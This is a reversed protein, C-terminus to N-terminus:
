IDLFVDTATPHIYGNKVLGKRIRNMDLDIHSTNSKYLGREESNEPPRVLDQNKTLDRVFKSLSIHFDAEKRENRSTMWEKYELFLESSCGSLSKGGEVRTIVWRLISESNLRRMDTRASTMPRNLDFELSTKYCNYNKLYQYFARQVKPNAMQKVLNNFYNSDSKISKDVDYPMFRRDNPLGAYGSIPNTNNTGFWYRTYDQQEYKQVGKRNVTRIKTTVKAKLDDIMKSNDKANAEEVFVFIKNELHENFPNFLESNNSIVLCYEDGIIRKFLWELLLNKGTGGGSALLASEDRLIVAIDEKEAPFQVVHSLYNLLYTPDGEALHTLHDIIPKILEAVDETPVAELKEAVFGSFMNYVGEPCVDPPCIFDMREYQRRNADRLWMFYFNQNVIKGDEWRRFLKNAYQIQADSNTMCQMKGNSQVHWIRANCVFHNLEFELKLKDYEENESRNILSKFVEENEQKCWYYLTKISIDEETPRVVFSKYIAHSEGEVYKKSRKSFEDFLDADFGEHHLALGVKIWDSFDEAHKVNIAFLLTRIDEVNKSINVRLKYLEANERKTTEKINKLQDKNLVPRFLGHIYDIIAQPCEPIGSQNNPLNLFRYSQTRGAVEYHSPEVYLLANANRIDLKLAQNTTTRLNPDAKFIYHCGKKTMQKIGGAEDCMEALKQNHPMSPDDLDIAMVGSKEGTLLAYGTANQRCVPDDRWSPSHFKFSKKGNNYGMDGSVLQWGLESYLNLLQMTM